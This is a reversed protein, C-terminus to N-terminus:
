EEYPVFQGNKVTFIRYEKPIDRFENFTIPGSVGPFDKIKKLGEKIKEQTTAGTKIVYGLVKIVDYADGAYLDMNENYKEKYAKLAAQVDPSTSEEYIVSEAYLLGEVLSGADELLSRTAIGQTSFFQQNLGLEKAQRLILPIDKDRAPCVIIEPNAEKIKLLPTRFDTEGVKYSEFFVIGGEGEEFAKKFGEAEGIGTSNNKYLVAAKKYGKDLIFKGISKGEELADGRNRFIYEGIKTFDPTLTFGFLLTKNEQAIPAVAESIESLQVLLVSVKDVDILKHAANVGTTSDGKSDEYIVKIVEKEKNVEALALEIGKQTREGYSVNKGSLPLIAGIKIPEEGTPKRSIEYWIGGIAIIAIIIGITIKTSKNM